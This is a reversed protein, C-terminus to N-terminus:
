PIQFMVGTYGVVLILTVAWKFQVSLMFCKDEQSLNKFYHLYIITYNKLVFKVKLTNGNYEGNSNILTLIDFKNNQFGGESMPRRPLIQLYTQSTTAAAAGRTRGDDRRQRKGTWARQRKWVWRYRKGTSVFSIEPNTIM